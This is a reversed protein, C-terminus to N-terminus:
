ESLGGAELAENRELFVQCRILKTGHVTWLHAIRQEFEADSGRPSTRLRVFAVVFGDADILQEVELSVDGVASWLDAFWRKVNAAGVLREVPAEAPPILEFDPEVVEFAADWDGGAFAEYSARIIEVAERSM